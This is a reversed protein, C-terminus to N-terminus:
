NLTPGDDGLNENAAKEAADALWLGQELLSDTADHRGHRYGMAYVDRLMRTRNADFRRMVWAVGGLVWLMFAVTITALFVEFEADMAAQFWVLGGSGLLAMAWLVTVLGDGFPGEKEKEPFKM